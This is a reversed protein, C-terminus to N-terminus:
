EDPRIIRVVAAFSGDTKVTVSFPQYAYFQGDRIIIADADWNWM